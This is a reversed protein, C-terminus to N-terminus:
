GVAGLSSIRILRLAAFGGLRASLASRSDRPNGNSIWGAKSEGAVDGDISPNAGGGEERSVAGHEHLISGRERSERRRTSGSVQVM